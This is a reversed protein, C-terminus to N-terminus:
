NPKDSVAPPWLWTGHSANYEAQPSSPSLGDPHNADHYLYGHVVNGQGASASVSPGPPAACGTVIIAGACFPLFKLIM